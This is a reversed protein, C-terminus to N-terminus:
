VKYDLNRKRVNYDSLQLLLDHREAIAKVVKETAKEVTPFLSNIDFRDRLRGSLQESVTSRMLVPVAAEQLIYM